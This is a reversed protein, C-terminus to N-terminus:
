SKAPRGTKIAPLAKLAAALAAPTLENLLKIGARLLESKKAPYGAEGARAKLVDIVSYEPKPMTFSDRVMKPKRPKGAPATTPAKAAKAVRAAEAPKTVAQTSVTTAVKGARPAPSKSPAKAASKAPSSAANRAGSKVAQKATTPAPAPRRTTAM